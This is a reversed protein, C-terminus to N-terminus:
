WGGGGGGGGGGGSSGGGGSGSSSSSASSMAGAFGGSLASAFAGAGGAALGAGTYWSTHMGEGRMDMDFLHDFQEAWQKEVGLAIAYPLYDEFLELTKMPTSEELRDGEATALYMKFGEIEDMLKRGEVTPQKLWFWFKLNILGMVIAILVMWITGVAALFCTVAIEAGVFPVAFLTMVIAGVVGGAMHLGKKAAVGKWQSIVKWVLGVVGMTWVSLWAFLFIVEYRRDLLVSGALILGTLVVGSVLWPTNNLFFPKMYKSKLSEKVAKRTNQLNKHNKQKM